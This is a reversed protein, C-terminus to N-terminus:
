GSGYKKEMKHLWQELPENPQGCPMVDVCNTLEQHKWEGILNLMGGNSTPMRRVEDNPYKEFKCVVGCKSCISDLGAALVIDSPLDEPLEELPQVTGHIKSAEWHFEEFVFVSGFKERLGLFGGTAKKFVGFSQRRADVRYLKRDKCDALPLMSLVM